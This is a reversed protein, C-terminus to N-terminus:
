LKLKRKIPQENNVHLEKELKHAQINAIAQHWNDFKIKSDDNGYDLNIKDDMNFMMKNYIKQSEVSEDASVKPIDFNDLFISMLEVDRTRLIGNVLLCLQNKDLTMKSLAPFFFALEEQFIPVIKSHPKDEKRLGSRYELHLNIGYGYNFKNNFLDILDIHKKQSLKRFGDLWKEPKALPSLNMFLDKNSEISPFSNAHRLISGLSEESFLPSLAEGDVDKMITKMRKSAFIKNTFTKDDYWNRSIIEKKGKIIQQIFDTSQQTTESVGDKILGASYYSDQEEYLCELTLLVPDIDHSSYGLIEKHPNEIWKRFYYIAYYNLFNSEIDISDKLKFGSVKDPRFIIKPNEILIPDKETLIEKWENIISYDERDINHVNKLLIQGFIGSSISFNKLSNFKKPELLDEIPIRNLIHRATEKDFISEHEKIMHVLLNLLKNNNKNQTM